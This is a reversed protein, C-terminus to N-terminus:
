LDAGFLIEIEVKENAILEIEIRANKVQVKTSREPQGCSVEHNNAALEGDVLLKWDGRGAINGIELKVPESSDDWTAFVLILTRLQPDYRAIQFDLNASAEAVCPESFHDAYWPEQFLQQLGNAVNLRAYALLSNGVLPLMSILRGEADRHADNRPYYYGGRSWSPNMFRDAHLLLGKLTEQDGMESACAALFGFDGSIGLPIGASEPIPSVVCETTDPGSKICWLDLQRAYVERVFDGNWMNMLMNAWADSWTGAEVESNVRRNHTTVYVNYRGNAATLGGFEKWAKVYGDIVEEATSGGNIWDHLRFGLIPVQNCVQFVCYPECAVGLYGNQVMQWYIHNTLSNEDYPHSEHRDALCLMPQFNFSLSGEAVYRDDGFMAHYLLAMVQVYAAYMINDRGVPNIESPLEPADVSMPAKGRSANQWYIWVEPHLMKAILKEFTGKFVAPAAPLRHRHALALAIAGYGLQYRYAGFDEQLPLAGMMHSWDGPPQDALNRLHRIAGLQADDLIQDAPVPTRGSYSMM